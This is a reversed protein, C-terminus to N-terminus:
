AVWAPNRGSLGLVRDLLPADAPVDVVPGFLGERAAEQGPVSMQSTFSHCAALSAPDCAFQQGTARALDWGHLVLEDVAVAGMADAPMVVGGAEAMGQWAAPDRWASVLEDLQGPLRARWDPDLNAASPQGPGAPAATGGAVGPSTKSATHTFAVTLGVVHDLLDGVSSGECPTPSALQEDTIGDVLTALQRAPPELDLMTTTPETM